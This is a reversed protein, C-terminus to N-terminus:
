PISVNVRLLYEDLGIGGPVDPYPSLDVVAIRVGLVTDATRGGAASSHLTVPYTPGRDGVRLGMTIVADGAWVCYAQRACRSDTPVDYFGLTAVTGPVAHEQGVVFTMENAVVVQGSVPDPRESGCAALTVAAAVIAMRRNM